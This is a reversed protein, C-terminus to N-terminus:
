FGYCAVLHIVLMVLLVESYNNGSYGGLAISPDLPAKFASRCNDATSYHQFFRIFPTLRYPKEILGSNESRMAPLYSQFTLSYHFYEFRNFTVQYIECIGTM